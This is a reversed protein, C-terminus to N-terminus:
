SEKPRVQFGKKFYFCVFLVLFVGLSFPCVFFCVVKLERERVFAVREWVFHRGGSMFVSLIYLWFTHRCEFVCLFTINTQMKNRKLNVNEDYATMCLTCNKRNVYKKNKDENVFMFIFLLCGVSRLCSYFSNLIFSLTFIFLELLFESKHEKKKKRKKKNLALFHIERVCRKRFFLKLQALIKVLEQKKQKM